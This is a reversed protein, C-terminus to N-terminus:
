QIRVQLHLCESALCEHDHGVFVKLAFWNIFSYFMWWVCHPQPRKKWKHNRTAICRYFITNTRPRTCNDRHESRPRCIRCKTELASKPSRMQPPSGELDPRWIGLTAGESRQPFINHITPLLINFSYRNEYFSYLNQWNGLFKTKHKKEFHIRASPQRNSVGRAKLFGSIQLIGFNV